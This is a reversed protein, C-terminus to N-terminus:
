RMMWMLGGYRLCQFLVGCLFQLALSICQPTLDHGLMKHVVTRPWFNKTFSCKMTIKTDTQVTCYDTSRYGFNDAKYLKQWAVSLIRSFHTTAEYSFAYIDINDFTNLSPCGLQNGWQMAKRVLLSKLQKIKWRQWIPSSSIVHNLYEFNNCIHIIIM